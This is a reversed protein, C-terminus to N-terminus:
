KSITKKYLSIFDENVGYLLILSDLFCSPFDSSDLFEKKYYVDSCNDERDLFDNENLVISVVNKPDKLLSQYDSLIGAFYVGRSLYTYKFEEILKQIEKPLLKTQLKNKVVSEICMEKLTKKPSSYCFSENEKKILVEIDKFNLKKPVEQDLKKINTFEDKIIEIFKKEKLEKVINLYKKNLENEEIRGSTNIHNLCEQFEDKLDFKDKNRVFISKEKNFKILGKKLLVTFPANDQKTKVLEEKSLGNELKMWMDYEVFNDKRLLGDKTLIYFNQKKKKLDIAMKESLLNLYENVKEKDLGLKELITERYTEEFNNINGESLKGLLMKSFELYKEFYKDESVDRKLNEKM